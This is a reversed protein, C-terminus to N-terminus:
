KSIIYQIDLKHTLFGKHNGFSFYIYTKKQAVGAEVSLLGKSRDPLRSPTCHAGKRKGTPHSRTCQGIGVEAEVQITHQLISGTGARVQLTRLLVSGTGM